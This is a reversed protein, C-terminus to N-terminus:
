WEHTKSKPLKPMQGAAETRMLCPDTTAFKASGLTQGSPRKTPTKSDQLWAHQLLTTPTPRLTKDRNLCLQLFGKCVDSVSQWVDGEFCLPKRLIEKAYAAQSKNAHSQWPLSGALMMHLCLGASWVDCSESPSEGKLVEPPLYQMTGTMTLSGGELMCRSANFDILRLDTLNPSVLINDAKIDRHVVRHQHLCEIADFLMRSLTRSTTESLKHEPSMQVADALPQSPFYELVLVARDQAMFFDIAKVIHPHQIRQLLTFEERRINIMEEDHVRMIKVAVELKDAKRTARRVVGTSGQGLYELGDFQETWSPSTLPTDQDRYTPCDIRLQMGSRRKRLNERSTKPPELRVCADNSGDEQCSGTTLFQAMTKGDELQPPLSTSAQSSSSSSAWLSDQDHDAMSKGDDLQPLLNTSVQELSSSSSSSSQLTDQDHDTPCGISSKTSPSPLLLKVSEQSADAQCLKITPLQAGAKANHLSPLMNESGQEPSSPVDIREERSSSAEITSEDDYVPCGFKVGLGRKPAGGSCKNLPVLKVSSDKSVDEKTPLQAMKKPDELSPVISFQDQSWARQQLTPASGNAQCRGVHARHQVPGQKSFDPAEADCVLDSDLTCTATKPTQSPEHKVSKQVMEDQSLGSGLRRLFPLAPM